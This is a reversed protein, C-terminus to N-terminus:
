LLALLILPVALWWTLLGAQLWLILTLMIVAMNLM